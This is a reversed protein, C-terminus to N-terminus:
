APSGAKPKAAARRAPAKAASRTASTKAAPSKAPPPKAAAPKARSRPAKADVVTPQAAKRRARPKAEVVTPEAAPTEALPQMTQGPYFSVGAGASNLSDEIENFITSVPAGTADHAAQDLFQGKRMAEVEKRLDDLESQRAMEDFSARFENAMGRLKGVFQGVKRLMVPLDKPGVVILAVIAIVVYELGGVEPLM